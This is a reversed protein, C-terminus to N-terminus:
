GIASVLLGAQALIEIIRQAIEVHQMNAATFREETTVILSGDRGCPIVGVSEPFTPLSGWSHKLYVMWGPWPLLQIGRQKTELKPTKSTDIVAWTPEWAQVVCELLAKLRPVQLVREAMEGKYLLRIWCSNAVSASTGGCKIHMSIGGQGIEETNGGSWIGVSYGLDDMLHHGYDTYQRGKLLLRELGEKDLTVKHQLAKKLTKALEYWDRCSEDWQGLCTLYDLMKGACEEVNEQRKGWYARLSYWEQTIM